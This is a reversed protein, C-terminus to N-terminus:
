WCMCGGLGQVVQGWDGGGEKEEEGVGSRDCPGGRQEELMGPGIRGWSRQVPQAMYRSHKHGLDESGKQRRLHGGSLLAVGIKRSRNTFYREAQKM